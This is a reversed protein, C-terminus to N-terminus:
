KRRKRLLIAGTVAVVVSAIASIIWLLTNPPTNQREASVTDQSLAPKSNGNAEQSVTSSPRGYKAFYPSLPTEVEEIKKGPKVDSYRGERIAAKNEEWWKMFVIKRAEDPNRYPIERSAVKTLHGISDDYHLAWNRVDPSFEQIRAVIAPLALGWTWPDYEMPNDWPDKVKTEPELFLKKEIVDEMVILLSSITGSSTFNGFVSRQAYDTRSLQKRLYEITVKDDLALLEGFRQDGAASQNKEYSANPDYRRITDAWRKKKEPSLRKLPTIRDITRYTNWWLAHEEKEIATLPSPVYPAADSVSIWGLLVFLNILIINKM